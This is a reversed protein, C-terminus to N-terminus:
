KEEDDILGDLERNLYWIAKEIDEKASNKWGARAIYKVANGLSFNLRWAEIVNIAEYLGPRYHTPHDVNNSKAKVKKQKRNPAKLPNRRSSDLNHAITEANGSSM